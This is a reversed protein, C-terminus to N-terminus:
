VRPELLVYLFFYTFCVYVFFDHQFCHLFSHHCRCFLIIVSVFSVVLLVLCYQFPFNSLARGLDEFRWIKRDLIMNENLQLHTMNQKIVDGSVEEM